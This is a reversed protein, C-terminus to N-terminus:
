FKIMEINIMGIILGWATTCVVVILSSGVICGDKAVYLMCSSVTYFLVPMCDPMSICTVM